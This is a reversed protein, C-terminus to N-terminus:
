VRESSLSAINERISSNIKHKLDIELHKTTKNGSMENQKFASLIKGPGEQNLNPISRIINNKLKNM